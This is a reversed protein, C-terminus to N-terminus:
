PSGHILSELIEIEKAMKQALFDIRRGSLLHTLNDIEDNFPCFGIGPEDTKDDSAPPFSLVRKEGQSFIAETSGLIVRVSSPKSGGPNDRGSSFKM